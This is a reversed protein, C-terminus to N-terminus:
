EIVNGLDYVINIAMNQEGKYDYFINKGDEDVVEELHADKVEVLMKERDKKYGVFFQIADYKIIDTIAREEDLIVYKKETTPLVERTEFKKSGSKIQDFFNQTIILNLVKM